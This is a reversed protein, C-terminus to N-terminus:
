RGELIFVAAGSSLLVALLTIPAALVWSFWWTFKQETKDRTHGVSLVNPIIHLYLGQRIAFYLILIAALVMIRETM